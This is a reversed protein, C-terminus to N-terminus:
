RPCMSMCVLSKIPQGALPSDVVLTVVLFVDIEDAVSVDVDSLARLWCGLACVAQCHPSLQAAPM